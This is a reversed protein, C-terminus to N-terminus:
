YFSQPPLPFKLPLRVAGTFKTCRKLEERVSFSILSQQEQEVEFAGDPDFVRGDAAAQKEM